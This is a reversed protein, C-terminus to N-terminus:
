TFTIAGSSEWTTSYTVEGQYEGAIELQTVKAKFTFVGLGPVTIEVDRLEGESWADRVAEFGSDDEFVGDGSFSCSQVGTADLLHRWNGTTDASTVDVQESNFAIRRTRFGAVTQFAPTGADDKLKVLFAKASQAAM